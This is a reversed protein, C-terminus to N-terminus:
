HTRGHAEEVVAGAPTQALLLQKVLGLHGSLYLLIDDLSVIGKLKGLRDVVPLRRFSGNRMLSLAKEIPTEERVKTCHATMVEGVLTTIPDRAMAVVRTIIDRDTVIGVPEQQHNVIILTGVAHQSMRRAAERVTDEVDVQDVQHQCIQGVSM